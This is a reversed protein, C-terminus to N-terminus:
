SCCARKHVQKMARSLDHYFSEM